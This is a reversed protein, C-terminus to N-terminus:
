EALDADFNLADAEHIDSPPMVAAAREVVELAKAIYREDGTEMADAMFISIAEWTVLYGAPDFETFEPTM